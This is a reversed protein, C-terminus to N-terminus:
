MEDMHSHNLNEDNLYAHKLNWSDYTEYFISAQISLKEFWKESEPYLAPKYLEM